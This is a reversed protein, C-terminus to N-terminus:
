SAFRGQAAAAVVDAVHDPDTYLNNHSGPLVACEVSSASTAAAALQDLWVRPAFSDDEGATLTVPVTVRRIREEPRDVMGSRLVRWVGTRGRAVTPAVVLEGLTDRRYAALATLALTPVRRLRPRFTPGALVLRMGARAQQLGLMATLAAQAGTSHGM